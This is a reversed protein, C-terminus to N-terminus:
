INAFIMRGIRVHTASYQLALQYDNSMGMSLITICPYKAQYAQFLKESMSFTKTIMETDTTNPAIIMIGKIQIHKFTQFYDLDIEEPLFGDKTTDYAINIQLLCAQIKDIQAAYKDILLLQKLNSVSHILDANAVIRKIKNSQIRGIFHWTLNPESIRKVELDQLKNEAFHNFGLQKVQKIEDISHYKSVVIVTRTQNLKLLSNITNTM